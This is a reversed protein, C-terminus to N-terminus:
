GDPSSETARHPSLVHPAHHSPWGALRAVSITESGASAAGSLREMTVQFPSRLREQPPQIMRYEAHITDAVEGRVQRGLRRREDAPRAIEIHGGPPKEEFPRAQQREGAATPM